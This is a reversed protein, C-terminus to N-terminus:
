CLVQYSSWRAQHVGLPSFSLYLYTTSDRIGNKFTIFPSPFQKQELRRRRCRLHQYNLRPSVIKKVYYVQNLRIMRQAENVCYYNFYNIVGIQVVRAGTNKRQQMKISQSTAVNGNNM